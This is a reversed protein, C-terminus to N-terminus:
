LALNEFPAVENYWLDLDRTLQCFRWNERGAKPSKQDRASIEGENIADRNLDNFRPFTEL